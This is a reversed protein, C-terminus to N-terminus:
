LAPSDKISANPRARTLYVDDGAPSLSDGENLHFPAAIRSVKVMGNIFTAKAPDRRRRFAESMAIQPIAIIHLNIHHEKRPPTRWAMQHIDPM